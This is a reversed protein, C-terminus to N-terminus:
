FIMTVLGTVCLPFNLEPEGLIGHFVKQPKDM